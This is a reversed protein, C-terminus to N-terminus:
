PLSLRDVRLPAQSAALRRALRRRLDPRQTSLNRRELPDAALDFLEFRGSQEILEIDELASHGATGDDAILKYRAEIIAIRRGVRSTIPARSPRAPDGFLWPSLSGASPLQTSAAPVGALELLTPALSLLSVPQSITRAEIGHPPRLLLPVRIREEYPGPRNRPETTKSQKAAVSEVAQVGHDATVALLTDDTMGLRALERLWDGLTTQPRVSSSADTIAGSGAGLDPAAYLLLLWPAREASMRELQSREETSPSRQVYEFGGFLDAVDDPADEALVARTTYGAARLREALESLPSGQESAAIESGPPQGTLLATLAPRTEGSAAYARSFRLSSRALLAIEPGQSAEIGHSLWILLNPRPDPQAASCAGALVVAILSAAGAGWDSNARRSSAPRAPRASNAPEQNTSRLM